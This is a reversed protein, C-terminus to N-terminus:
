DVFPDLEVAVAVVFPVAAGFPTVPQDDDINSYGRTWIDNVRNM